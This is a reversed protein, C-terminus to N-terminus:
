AAQGREETSPRAVWPDVTELTALDRKHRRGKATAWARKWERPNTPILVRDPIRGLALTEAVFAQLEETATFWEGHLRVDGFLYHVATEANHDGEVSGLMEFQFPSWIEVARLRSLPVASCGIKIPGDMGIPKLFYVRKM